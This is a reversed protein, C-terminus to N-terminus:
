EIRYPKKDEYLKLRPRYQEELAKPAAEIARTQWEVAKDFEGLEAHAAALTALENAGKSLEYAKKAAELAKKGDRVTAEPCAARLMAIATYYSAYYPQKGALEAAKEYDAVAKAYEKKAEWTRGRMNWPVNYTPELEISKSYDTIAEDYNKRIFAVNARDRYFVSETPVIKIARNYDALAKDYDMRRYHIWGRVHYAWDFEPDQEIVASYDAMARDYQGKGYALNARHYFAVTAKPDIEIARDFDALAKDSGLAVGRATLAHSNKPDRALEKTFHEVASEYLVADSKPIWGRQRRSDVLLRDQEEKLVSFTLDKAVGDTKPAIDKGEPKLLRVGARALVVLKGEWSPASTVLTHGKVTVPFRYLTKGATVYLTKHDTGGFAVNTILDEPVPIRGLLKGEPSIVYVGAPVDLSVGVNGLPKNIGAAVWLNGTADVRMGDGGRGKGFDYVIRQKSLSGDDALNFAWIKRNGGVKPHSDIVYLTKDDPSVAIGNPRDIEKQTLVRRVKGDKEICYVGEVDMELDSRDAGYRPDTFWIRGKADVCCDNPSNYRKGEFKETLVTIAGTKMDTRVIRRRGPGQESGECSILRGASDFCNGNTRGSDARFTTVTGKSDMKLLRNGAIDSFIVNGAADVAPGELFCIVAAPAVATEKPVLGEPLPTKSLDQAAILSCSLLVTICTLIRISTHTRMSQTGALHWTAPDSRSRM